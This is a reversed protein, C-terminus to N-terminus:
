DGGKEARLEYRWLGIVAGGLGLLGSTVSSAISLAAHGYVQFFVWACLMTVVSLVIMVVGVATILFVKPLHLEIGSALGRRFADRISPIEVPGLTLEPQDAPTSRQRYERGESSTYAM